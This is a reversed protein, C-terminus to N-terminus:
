DRNVIDRPFTSLQRFVISVPLRQDFDSRGATDDGWWAASHGPSRPSTKGVIPLAEIFDYPTFMWDHKNPVLSNKIAATRHYPNNHSNWYQMMRPFSVTQISNKSTSPHTVLQISPAARSFCHYIVTPPKSCYVLTDQDDTKMIHSQIPPPSFCCM